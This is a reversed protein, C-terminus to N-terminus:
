TIPIEEDTLSSLTHDELSLVLLSISKLVAQSMSFPKLPFMHLFNNGPVCYRLNVCSKETPQVNPRRIAGVRQEAQKGLLLDHFESKFSNPIYLTLHIVLVLWAM